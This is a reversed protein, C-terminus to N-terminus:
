SSTGKARDATSFTLMWQGRGWRPIMTVLHRGERDLRDLTAGLQCYPVDLTEFAPALPLLEPQLTPKMLHSM